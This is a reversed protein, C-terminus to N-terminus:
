GVKKMRELAKTRAQEKMEETWSERRSRDCWTTEFTEGNKLKIILTNYPETTISKIQEVRIGLSDIKEFLIDEPIQKSPCASKGQTNYTSCIWVANYKTVKRRYHKGCFACTILSKLPSDVPAKRGAVKEARRTMEMHALNYTGIDIIAEHSDEIHYKPLTGYNFEKKKTLHDSVYTKQLILNGTYTYNNIVDRINARKWQKGNRTPYGEENLKNAITVYGMGELYYKYILRIVMAESEVIRFAGDKFRYGYITRNWPLGEEFTKKVRWKMNESVSLSEEQAYSALITLMLEGDASLTHINQEEFYVDIGLNKFERVTELVTVTNRAFRSISKTIVIDIKGARCDAILRKLGERTDKTGTKAEDAYIGAFSWNKHSEIYSKYYSVQSSLSHLMTDKGTSVRAYAAVRKPKLIDLRPMTVKTVTKM